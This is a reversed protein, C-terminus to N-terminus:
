TDLMCQYQLTDCLATIVEGVERWGYIIMCICWACGCEVAEKDSFVVGEIREFVQYFFAESLARDVQEAKYKRYLISRKHKRKLLVCGTKGGNSSGSPLRHLNDPRGIFNM